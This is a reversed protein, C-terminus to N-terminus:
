NEANGAPVVAGPSNSLVYNIAWAAKFVPQGFCIGTNRCVFKGGSEFAQQGGISQLAPRAIEYGVREAYGYLTAVFRRIGGAQFSDATGSPPGFSASGSGQMNPSPLQAPGSQLTSQRVIPTHSAVGVNMQYSIYSKDPPPKENQFSPTTVTIPTTAPPIVGNFLVTPSSSCLDIIADNGPLQVLGAYGRNDHAHSMSAQWLSWNAQTGGVPRWLGTKSFDFLDPPIAPTNQSGNAATLAPTLLRYSCSFSNGMSFLDEDAIVEDLFAIRGNNRAWLVRERVIQGFINWALAPPAGLTSEINVSINNRLITTERNRRSWVVRHSGEIATTLVPFVNKSRHQRDTITFEVRSKDLNIHWDSTREFGILQAPNVLHRYGDACDPVTGFQSRTMAIELFGAITRTTFGKDISFTVGYNISMVGTVRHVRGGACVPICTEVEWECECTQSSGVPEWHLIRPKPGFKVDRIGSQSQNVILDESFGWGNFVLEKGPKSLLAQIGLMDTGTGADDNVYFKAGIIHKHYLVSRQAEDEVFEVRCRVSSSGDFPYGNYRLVGPPTLHSFSM